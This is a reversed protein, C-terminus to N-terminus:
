AAEERAGIASWFGAQSWDTVTHIRYRANDHVIVDSDHGDNAAYLPVTTIIQKNEFGRLGEPVTELERGSVPLVVADIGVQSHPHPQYVGDNTWDGASRRLVTIHSAFTSIVDSLDMKM